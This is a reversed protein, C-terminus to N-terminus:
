VQNVLKHSIGWVHNVLWPHIQKHGTGSLGTQQSSTKCTLYLEVHHSCCSCAISEKQPSISLSFYLFLNYKIFVFNSKIIEVPEKLLNFMFLFFLFLVCYTSFYKLLVKNVILSQTLCPFCPWIKDDPSGSKEKMWEDTPEWTDRWEM